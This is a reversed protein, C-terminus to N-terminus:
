KTIKEEIKDDDFFLYDFRKYEITHIVYGIIPLSGGLIPGIAGFNVDFYSWFSFNPLNLYDLDLLPFEEQLNLFYELFYGTTGYYIQVAIMWVIIPILIGVGYYAFTKDLFKDEKSINRARLVMKVGFFTIIVSVVIGLILIMVDSIFYFYNFWTWGQPM